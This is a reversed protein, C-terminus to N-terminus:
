PLKSVNAAGYINELDLKVTNNFIQIPTFTNLQSGTVYFRKSYSLDDNAINNVNSTDIYTQSSSVYYFGGDRNLDFGTVSIYFPSPIILGNSLGTTDIQYTVLAVSDLNTQANSTLGLTILALLLFLKKM